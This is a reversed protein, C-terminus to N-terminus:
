EILKFRRNLDLTKAYFYFGRYKDHNRDSSPVMREELTAYDIAEVYAGIPRPEFPGHTVKLREGKKLVAEGGGTFSCGV